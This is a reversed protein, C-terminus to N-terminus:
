ALKGKWDEFGVVELGYGQLAKFKVMHGSLVIIRRLGLSSLIQAGLGYNLPDKGPAEEGNEVSSAEQRQRKELFHIEESLTMTDRGPMLYVFVGRDRGAIFQLNRRLSDGWDVNLAHFVDGPVMQTQVRVHVPEDGGINGRVLALHESGDIASRFVVSEFRGFETDLHTRAVEHVLKETRLRYGIIDAITVIRLGFREAFVELQPMRAMTGDENMVECIVGAATLGAMRALDVAAETQGARELVGGKRARLPFIHGPRALDKPRTGPAVATLVTQCRDAASIGTTVGKRAEISVTFATGFKSTNDSVMLPLHLDDLREPTMSLCILGRGHGAMFNIAEPTCLEAALTLDGENERDEDDVVIIM